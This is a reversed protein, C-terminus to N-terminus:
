RETNSPRKCVDLLEMFLEKDIEDSLKKFHELIKDAEEKRRKIVEEKTLRGTVAKPTNM